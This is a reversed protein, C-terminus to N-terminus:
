HMAEQYDWQFSKTLNTTDAYMQKMQTFRNAHKATTSDDTVEPLADSKSKGEQEELNASIM